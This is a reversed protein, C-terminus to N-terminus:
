KTVRLFYGTAYKTWAAPQRAFINLDHTCLLRSLNILLFRLVGRFPRFGPLSPLGIELLMGITGWYGGMRLIEITTFASFLHRLGDETYRQFDFPDAHVPFLFPTSVFAVGGPKLLRFIEGVCKQPDPLHELVETCLISDCFESKCPVATVDGFVNPVTNQDLNIYWWNKNQNDPPNFQGRKKLRKGGLDVVTGVMETVFHTLCYDLWLRRYTVYDKSWIKSTQPQSFEQM